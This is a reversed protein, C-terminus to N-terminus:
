ILIDKNQCHIRAFFIFNVLVGNLFSTSFSYLTEVQNSSSEPDFDFAFGNACYSNSRQPMLSHLQIKHFNFLRKNVRKTLSPYKSIANM